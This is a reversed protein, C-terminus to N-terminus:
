IAVKLSLIIGRETELGEAIRKMQTEMDLKMAAHKITLVRPRLEPPARAGLRSVEHLRSAEALPMWPHVDEGGDGEARQRRLPALNSGFCADCLYRGAM